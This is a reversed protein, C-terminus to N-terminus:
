LAVKIRATRAILLLSCSKTVLDVMAKALILRTRIGKERYTQTLARAQRKAADESYFPM